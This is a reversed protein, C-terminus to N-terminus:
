KLHKISTMLVYKKIKQIPFMLIQKCINASMGPLIGPLMGPLLGYIQLQLICIIDIHMYDM